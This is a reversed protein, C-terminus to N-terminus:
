PVKVGTFPIIGNVSMGVWSMGPLLFGGGSQSRHPSAFERFAGGSLRDTLARLESLTTQENIEVAPAPRFLRSFWM